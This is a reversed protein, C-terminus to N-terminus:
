HSATGKDRGASLMAACKFTGMTMGVSSASLLEVIGQVMADALGQVNGSDGNSRIPSSLSSSSQREKVTLRTLLVDDVQKRLEKLVVGIQAAMSLEIWEDIVVLREAHKVQVLGGFL